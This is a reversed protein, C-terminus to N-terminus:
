INWKTIFNRDSPFDMMDIKKAFDLDNSKIKLIYRLSPCDLDVFSNRIFYTGSSITKDIRDEGLLTSPSFVLDNKDLIWYISQFIKLTNTTIQLQM